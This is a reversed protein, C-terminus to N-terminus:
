KATSSPVVYKALSAFASSATRGLHRENSSALTASYRANPLTSRPRESKRPM